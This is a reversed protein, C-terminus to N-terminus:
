QGKSKAERGHLPCGARYHAGVPGFAIPSISHVLSLGERSLLNSIDPIKGCCHSVLVDLHFCASLESPLQHYCPHSEKGRM